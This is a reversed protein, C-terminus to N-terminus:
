LFDEYDLGLGLNARGTASIMGMTVTQGIGFPNGVALVLDGVEIKDSDAMPLPTLDNAEIKLVAVDSKSDTGVVKATLERGDNLAVKVEDAGEVVHNNTLIYGDKTVVVGSGLGYQKPARPGPSRRGGEDGQGEDGFFRRFFPDDLLNMSRGQKVKTTTFVKVVSPAVKKVVPAFSTVPRTDRQVPADDVVLRVPSTGGGEKAHILRSFALSSGAVVLAGGLLAM